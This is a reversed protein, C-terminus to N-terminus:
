HKQGADMEPLPMNRREAIAAGDLSSPPRCFRLDQHIRSIAVRQARHYYRKREWIM